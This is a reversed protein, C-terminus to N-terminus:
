SVDLKSEVYMNITIKFFIDTVYHNEDLVVQNSLPPLIHSLPPKLFTFHHPPLTSNREPMEGPCQGGDQLVDMGM